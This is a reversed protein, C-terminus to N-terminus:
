PVIPFFVETKWNNPDPDQGPDTVYSEWAPGNVAFGNESIWKEIAVYTEVLQEYPGSHTAMAVPGSALFGAQMDGVGPAPQLLPMICDITWLGQGVKVYRTMPHGAIALGAPVGHSYLRGFCEALVPQMETHVVQKQIFLIPQAEMVRREINSTAMYMNRPKNKIKQNTVVPTHYLRICPSAKRVFVAHHERQQSTVGKLARKRYLTPACGFRRRFARVFVEHSAYGADLAIQLVSENGSVLSAAAGDLRIRQMFQKPSEGVYRVFERQLHFKSWGSEVSLRRLDLALSQDRTIRNILQLISNPTPM